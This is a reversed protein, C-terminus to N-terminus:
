GARARVAPCTRWSSKTSAHKGPDERGGEGYRRRRWASDPLWKRGRRIDGYCVLCCNFTPDYNRWHKSTAGEQTTTLYSGIVEYGESSIGRFSHPIKRQPNRKTPALAGRRKEAEM